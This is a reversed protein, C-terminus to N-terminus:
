KKHIELLWCSVGNGLECSKKLDRFASISDGLYNKCYSRGYYCSGRLSDAKICKDFCYIAQNLITPNIYLTDKSIYSTAEKEYTDALFFWYQANSSDLSIAKMYNQRSRNLDDTSKSLYWNMRNMDGLFFYALHNNSDIQIAKQFLSDAETRTKPNYM